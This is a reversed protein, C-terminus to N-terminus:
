LQYCHGILPMLTTHSSYTPAELAVTASWDLCAKYEFAFQRQRSLLNGKFDNNTTQSVARQDFSRVVKGRSTTRRRILSSNATLVVDWLLEPDSNKCVYTETPRQLQDYVTRFRYGRSNWSYFAKGGADTWCGASELSWAQKIFLRALCITITARFLATRPTLSRASFQRSHRLRHTTTRFFDELQPNDSPADRHKYKAKNHAVAFSGVDLRTSICWMPPIRMSWGDQYRGATQQAGLAAAQRQPIGPPASLRGAPPPSLLRLTPM